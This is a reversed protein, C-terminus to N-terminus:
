PRRPGRGGARLLGARLCHCPTALDFHPLRQELAARLRAPKLRREMSPLSRPGTSAAGDRQSVSLPVQSDARSKRDAAWGPPAGLWAARCGPRFLISAFPRACCKPAESFAIAASRSCPARARPGPITLCIPASPSPWCPRPCTAPRLPLQGLGARALLAQASQPLDPISEGHSACDGSFRGSVHLRVLGPGVCLNALDVKAFILTPDLEIAQLLRQLGDQMRHRHLTQWEYHGACFSIM